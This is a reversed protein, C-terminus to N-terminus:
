VRSEPNILMPWRTADGYTYLKSWKKNKWNQRQYETAHYPFKATNHFMEAHSFVLVGKEFSYWMTVEHLGLRNIAEQYFDTM